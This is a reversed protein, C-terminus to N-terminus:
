NNKYYKHNVFLAQVGMEQCILNVEESTLCDANHVNFKYIEKTEQHKIEITTSNKQITNKM